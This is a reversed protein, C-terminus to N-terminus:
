KDFLAKNAEAASEWGDEGICGSACKLYGSKSPCANYAAICAGCVACGGMAPLGVDEFAQFNYGGEDDGVIGRYKALDMITVM